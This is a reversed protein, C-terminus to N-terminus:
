KGEKGKILKEYEDSTLYFRVYVDKYYMKHMKRIIHRIGTAYGNKYALDKVQQYLLISLPIALGVTASLVLGGITAEM